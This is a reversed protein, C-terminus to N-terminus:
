AHRPVRHNRRVVVVAGGAALATAGLTALGVTQWPFGATAESGSTEDVAPGPWTRQQMYQKEHRLLQEDSPGYEHMYQREQRLSQEIEAETPEDAFAIAATAPTLLATGVAAAAAIRQIRNM